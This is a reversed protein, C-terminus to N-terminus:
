SITLNLYRGPNESICKDVLVREVGAETVRVASETITTSGGILTGRADAIGENGASTKTERVADSVIIIREPNKIAFVMELTKPHLHHTDAIVEVYVDRNMLGFGALGPERHHFGRMANFLHTIGRAGANFGTEAQAYTAESHGMSAAIGRDVIARILRVAGDPEPAITIIRIVDEFGEILQRLHYDTPEIFTMANLAGCRSPNLFPGELHLGVIRSAYSLGRDKQRGMARKIVAMHERMVPIPAPYVTPIIHTVGEAGHLEAIRFIHEEDTTRTDYGGIGHTHIDIVAM